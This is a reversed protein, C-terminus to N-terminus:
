SACEELKAYAGLMVVKVPDTITVRIVRNRSRGLRRWRARQTYKGIAGISTAYGNSWTHGGDDSWHLTAQPSSGQGTILGVGSEFEVELEHWIVNLREKNVVQSSRIRQIEHLNDTYTDMKLKYLKGNQYDGAIYMDGFKSICNARHRGWDFYGTVPNQYYSQWEHWFDTTVDYVWTKGETPFILVYFIHGLVQYTYARADSTTRYTSIQYDIHPTSVTDFQYGRTRVVRKETSLWYIVGGITVASAGSQIGLEVIAGPIRTYPFDVDGSNYFVEAVKSGFIWLDHANSIVVEANDPSAEASAFDLSDWTTGDYLGSVFIQGTGVKTIIFYGDQFTVSSAKPFDVDSITSLVNNTILYGNDSGDVFIVETGNDAFFVSSDTTSITGLLTAVGGRTVSYVSTNMIVYLYKGFEHMGRVVYGFGTPSLSSLEELGPTGFLAVPDKGEHQDIAPFLNVCRQANINTSYSTYAGGIFPIQM